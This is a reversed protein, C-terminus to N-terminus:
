RVMTANLDGLSEVGFLFVSLEESAKKADRFVTSRDIGLVDALDDGSKEYETIYLDRLIRCRREAMPKDKCFNQYSKFMEDFYDIMKKTKAKYAMLSKLDLESPDFIVDEYGELEPVIGECHKSLIRYNKLLLNTNRLRWDKHSEKKSKEKEIQKCVVQVITELTEKDLKVSM